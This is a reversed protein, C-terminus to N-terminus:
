PTVRNVVLANMRALSPSRSDCRPTAGCIKSDSSSALAATRVVTCRPVYDHCFALEGGQGLCREIVVGSQVPDDDDAAARGPQLQSGLQAITEAFAFRRRDHQEIARACM